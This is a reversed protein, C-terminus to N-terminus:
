LRRSPSTISRRGLMSVVNTTAPLLKRRHSHRFPNPSTPFPAGCDGFLLLHQPLRLERRIDCVGDTQADVRSLLGKNSYVQALSILMGDYPTDDGFVEHAYRRVRTPSTGRKGGTQSAETEAAFPEWIFDDWDPFFYLYSRRSEVGGRLSATGHPLWSLWRKM